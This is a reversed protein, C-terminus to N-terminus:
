SYLSSLEELTNIGFRQPATTERVDAGALRGGKLYEKKMHEQAWTIIEDMTPTEMGVLDAVGKYVCLGMPIDETFYRNEFNPVWGGVDELERLPCRFGKYAANGTFFDQLEDSPDEYVFKALFDFIHPVQVNLGSASLKDAVAILEMNVRDMVEAGDADLDEYFLPNHALPSGTTTWERLLTWLRSPHIVANIPYLTCTLFNGCPESAGFMAKNIALVEELKSVPSCGIRYRRKLEQVEVHKGFDRIRCNFPMPMVAYVTIQSMLDAGLIERAIWDFGGQGPTIALKQGPRLLEKIAELTPAYTFSPLPMLIIDAEPIVDEPSKSVKVPCGRVEGNPDNHPAFHALMFGQEDLGAQIRAAEDQYPCYMSTPFGKHPLLAALAHAANGGGIITVKINEPKAM